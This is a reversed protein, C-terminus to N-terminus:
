YRRIAGRCRWYAPRRARRMTRTHSISRMPRATTTLERFASWDLMSRRRLEISDAFANDREAPKSEFEELCCLRNTVGLPALGRCLESIAERRGGHGFSLTVHLVNMADRSEHEGREVSRARGEAAPVVPCRGCRSQELQVPAGDQRKGRMRHFLLEAIQALRRDLAKRQAPDTEFYRAAAVALGLEIDHQDMYWGESDQIKILQEPTALSSSWYWAIQGDAGSCGDRWNHGAKDFIAPDVWGYKELYRGFATLMGPIRPDQTVVWAHWLGDVINETMWPSAGRVDTAANYEDGEHKQWSHRWSGDAPKGDPNSQQHKQLWGVRDDIDKRYHADGTLEYASVVALLGLGTNRETYLQDAKEYPGLIGTWGGADWLDIMRRVLAADHQSDDGSLALSLLIPEVYVYKVDCPNVGDFEWGGGCFPHFPPGSRRLHSM